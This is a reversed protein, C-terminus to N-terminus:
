LNAKRAAVNRDEDVPDLEVLIEGKKVKQGEVVHIKRVQGGAKSKILIFQNPEVVGNATVPIVMDGPKVKDLEGHLRPNRWQRNFLAYVGVGLVGIVFVGILLKKM